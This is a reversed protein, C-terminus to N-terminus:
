SEEATNLVDVQSDLLLLQSELDAVLAQVM